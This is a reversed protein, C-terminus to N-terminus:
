RFTAAPRAEGKSQRSVARAHEIRMDDHELVIGLKAREDGTPQALFAETDAGDLGGSLQEVPDARPARVREHHVDAEGVCVSAVDDLRESRM